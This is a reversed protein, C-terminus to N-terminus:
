SSIRQSKNWNTDMPMPSRFMRRGRSVRLSSNPLPTLNRSESASPPFREAVDKIDELAPLLPQNMTMANILRLRVEVLEPTRQLLSDIQPLFKTLFELVLENGLRARLADMRQRNDDRFKEAHNRLHAFFAFLGAGAVVIAAGLGTLDVM